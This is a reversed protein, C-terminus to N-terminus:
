SAPGEAKPAGPGLNLADCSAGGQKAERRCSETPLATVTSLGQWCLVIMGVWGQTVHGGHGRRPGARPFRPGHRPSCCHRHITSLPAAQSFCTQPASAETQQCPGFAREEEAVCGAGQSQPQTAHAGRPAGGATPRGQSATAKGQDFQRQLSEMESKNGSVRYIGETSLGTSFCAKSACTSLLAPSPHAQPSFRPTWSAGRPRPVGPPCLCKDQRSGSRGKKKRVKFNVFIQKKTFVLIICFCMLCLYSRDM